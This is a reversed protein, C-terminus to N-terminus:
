HRCTNAPASPVRNTGLSNPLLSHLDGDGGTYPLTILGFLNLDLFLDREWLLSPLTLPLTM